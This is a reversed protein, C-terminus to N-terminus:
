IIEFNLKSFSLSLLFSLKFDKNDAQTARKVM